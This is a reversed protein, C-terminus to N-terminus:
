VAMRLRSHWKKEGGALFCATFKHGTAPLKSSQYIFVCTALGVIPYLKSLMQVNLRQLVCM